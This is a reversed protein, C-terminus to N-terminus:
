VGLYHTTYHPGPLQRNARAQLVHSVYDYIRQFREQHTFRRNKPGTPTQMQTDIIYPVRILYIKNTRCMQEKMQDRHLQLQFQEETKHYSNPYVYHQKGNYEIGIRSVPDFCDIELNKGTEPNRLEDDRYGNIVERDILSELAKCSFEEGKSKYHTERGLQPYKFDETTTHITMPLPPPLDFLPTSNVYSPQTYAPPEEYIPEVYPPYGDSSSHPPYADSPYADSSAYPPHVMPFQSYSPQTYAIPSPPPPNPCDFNFNYDEPNYKYDRKGGWKM